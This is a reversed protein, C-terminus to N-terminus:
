PGGLPLNNLKQKMTHRFPPSDEFHAANHLSNIPPQNSLSSRHNTIRNKQLLQDEEEDAHNGGGNMKNAPKKISRIAKIPTGNNLRQPPQENNTQLKKVVQTGYSQGMIMAPPAVM